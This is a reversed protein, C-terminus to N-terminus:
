ILTILGTLRMSYYRGDDLNTFTYKGSGNVAQEQCNDLDDEECVTLKYYSVCDTPGLNLNVDVHNYDALGTM